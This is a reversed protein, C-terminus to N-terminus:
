RGGRSVRDQRVDLKAAIGDTAARLEKLLDTASRDKAALQSQLWEVKAEEAKLACEAALRATIQQERYVAERHALVSAAGAKVLWGVGFVWVLAALWLPIDAIQELGTKQAVPGAADALAPLSWLAALGIASWVVM